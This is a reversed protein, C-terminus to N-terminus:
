IVLRPATTAPIRRMTVTLPLRLTGTVSTVFTKKRAASAPLIVSGTVSTASPDVTMIAELNAIGTVIRVEVDDIMM